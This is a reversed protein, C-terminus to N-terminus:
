GISCAFLAIYGLAVLIQQSLLLRNYLKSVRRGEDRAKEYNKKNGEPLYKGGAISSILQEPDSEELLQEPSGLLLVRQRVILVMQRRKQHAEINIYRKVLAGVLASLLFLVSAAVLAWKAVSAHLVSGILVKDGQTVAIAFGATAVALIWEAYRLKDEAVRSDFEIAENLGKSIEAILETLQATTAM